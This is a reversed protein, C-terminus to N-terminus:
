FLNLVPVINPISLEKIMSNYLDFTEGYWKRGSKILNIEELEHHIANHFTTIFNTPPLESSNQTVIRKGQGLDTTIFYYTYDSYLHITKRLIGLPPSYQLLDPSQGYFLIYDGPDFSNDEEGSVFIANEQLDDHRFANSNEPLMGGGNGYIRLNKPNIAGVPMGLDLLNQYTIKHVGTNNVAIKYWDGSALVSKDTYSRSKLEPGGTYSVSETLVLSFHTLREFHGTIQNMRVPIFSIIAFPKKRDYSFSMDLKIEQGVLNLWGLKHIDDPNIPEFIMDKLEAQYGSANQSLQFVEFFEPAFQREYSNESGAFGMVYSVDAGEIVIPQLEQWVLTRQYSYESTRGSTSLYILLSIVILLRVKM